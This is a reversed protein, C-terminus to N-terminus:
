RRTGLPRHSACRVHPPRDCGDVSCGGDRIALAKRQAPTFVRTSRGLDLVESEGRTIVRTVEADCALRRAAEPTIVGHENLEVARNARGELVELDCVVTLQPRQGGSTPTDKNDLLFKCTDILGDARIQAKSRPDERNRYAPEALAGIATAVIAGSEPDLVADLITM